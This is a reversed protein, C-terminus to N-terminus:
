NQPDFWFITIAIKIGLDGFRIHRNQCRFRFVQLWRNQSWVLLFRRWQNQPWVSLFQALLKSVLDIAFRRLPKSTLDSVFRTQLWIVSLGYWHNRPWILSLNNIKTKLNLWFIQSGRRWTCPASWVCRWGDERDDPWRTGLRHSIM